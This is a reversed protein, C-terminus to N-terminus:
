SAEVAADGAARALDAVHRKGTFSGAAAVDVQLVEDATGNDRSARSCPTLPRVQDGDDLARDRRPVVVVTGGCERRARAACRAPGETMTATEVGTSDHEAASDTPRSARGEGRADDFASRAVLPQAAGDDGARDVCGAKSPAWVTATSCSGLAREVGARAGRRRDGVGGGALDRQGTRVLLDV